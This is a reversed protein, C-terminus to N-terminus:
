RIPLWFRRAPLWIRDARGKVNGRPVYPSPREAAPDIFNASDLAKEAIRQAIAAADERRECLGTRCEFQVVVDTQPVGFILAHAEGTQAYYGGSTITDDPEAGDYAAALDKLAEALGQEPRLWTWLAVSYEKTRTTGELRIRPIGCICMMEFEFYRSLAALSLVRGATRDVSTSTSFDSAFFRAPWCILRSVHVQDPMITGATLSLLAEKAFRIIPYM